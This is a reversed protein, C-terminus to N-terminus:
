NTGNRSPFPVCAFQQTLIVASLLSPKSSQQSSMMNDRFAAAALIDNTYINAMMPLLNGDGDAVGNNINCPFGKTLKPKAASTEIWQLEELLSKHKIIM